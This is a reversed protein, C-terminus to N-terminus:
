QPLQSPPKTESSSPVRKMAYNYSDYQHRKLQQETRLQQITDVRFGDKKTYIFSYGFLNLTLLMTSAVGISYWFLSFSKYIFLFVDQKTKTTSSSIAIARPEEIDTDSSDNELESMHLSTTTQIKPFTLKNQIPKEMAISAPVVQFSVTPSVVGSAALFFLWTAVMTIRFKQLQM